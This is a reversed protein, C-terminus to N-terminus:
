RNCLCIEGHEPPLFLGGKNIKLLKSSFESISSSRSSRNPGFHFFHRITCTHYINYEYITQSNSLKLIWMKLVGCLSNMHAGSSSVTIALHIANWAYLTSWSTQTNENCPQGSAHLLKVQIAEPCLQYHPVQFPCCGIADCVIQTVQGCLHHDHHHYGFVGAMAELASTNEQCLNYFHRM